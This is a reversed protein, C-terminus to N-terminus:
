FADAGTPGLLKFVQVDESEPIQDAMKGASILVAGAKQGNRLQLYIARGAKFSHDHIMGACVMDAFTQVNGFDLDGVM